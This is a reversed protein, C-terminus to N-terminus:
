ESECCQMGLPDVVRYVVVMNDVTRVVGTFDVSCGYGARAVSIDLPVCKSGVAPRRRELAESEVAGRLPAIVADM